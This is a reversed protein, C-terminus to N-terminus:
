NQTKRKFYYFHLMVKENINDDSQEVSDLFAMNSKASPSPPPAYIYRIGYLELPYPSICLRNLLLCMERLTTNMCEDNVENM